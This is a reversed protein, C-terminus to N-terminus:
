RTRCRRNSEEEGMLTLCIFYAIEPNYSIGPKSLKAALDNVLEIIFSGAKARSQRLEKEYREEQRGDCLRGSPKTTAVALLCQTLTSKRSFLHTKKASDGHKHYLQEATFRNGDPKVWEEAQLFATNIASRNEILYNSGDRIASVVYNVIQNANAEPDLPPPKKASNKTSRGDQEGEERPRKRGLSESGSASNSESEIGESPDALAIGHNQECQEPEIGGSGKTRANPGSQSTYKQQSSVDLGFPLNELRTIENAQSIQPM